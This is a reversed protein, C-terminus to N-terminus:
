TSLLSYIWIRQEDVNLKPFELRRQATNRIVRCDCFSIADQSEDAPPGSPLRSSRHTAM